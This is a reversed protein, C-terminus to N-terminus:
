VYKSATDQHVRSYRSNGKHIWSFSISLSSFIQMRKRSFVIRKSGIIESHLFVKLNQLKHYLTSRLKKQIFSHLLRNCELYAMEHSHTQRADALNQNFWAGIFTICFKKLVKNKPFHNKLAHLINQFIWMVAIDPWLLFAYWQCSANKHKETIIFLSNSIDLYINYLFYQDINQLVQM